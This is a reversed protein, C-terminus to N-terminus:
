HHFHKGISEAQVNKLLLYKRWEYINVVLSSEGSQFRNHKHARRWGDFPNEEQECLVRRCLPQFFIKIEDVIQNIRRRHIWNEM